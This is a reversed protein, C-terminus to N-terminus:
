LLSYSDNTLVCSFHGVFLEFPGGLPSRGPLGHWLYVEPYGWIFLFSVASEGEQLLHGLNFFSLGVWLPPWVPGGRYPDALGVSASSGTPPLFFFLSDAPSCGVFSVPAQPGGMPRSHCWLQTPVWQRGTDPPRTLDSFTQCVPPGLLSCLEPGLAELERSNARRLILTCFPGPM